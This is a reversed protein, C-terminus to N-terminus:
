GSLAPTTTRPSQEAPEVGRSDGVDGTSLAVVVAASAVVVAASAAAVATVALGRRVRQARRDRAVVAFHAAPALRGWDDDTSEFAHRLWLDPRDYDVVTRWHKILEILSGPSSRPGHGTEWSTTSRGRSAPSSRSSSCASTPTSSLRM